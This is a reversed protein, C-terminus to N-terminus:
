RSRGTRSEDFARTAAMDLDIGERRVRADLYHVTSVAAVLATVVISAIIDAVGAVAWLPLQLLELGIVSPATEIALRMVLAGLGACVFVIAGHFWTGSMLNFSRRIARIPGVKEAGMIPATLTVFVALVIGGLGLTFLAGILELVHVLIWGLALLPSRKVSVVLVDTLTAPQGAYWIAAVHAFISAVSFLAISELILTAFPAFDTGFSSANGVVVDMLEDPRADRLQSGPMAASIVRLPLLVILTAGFLLGPDVRLFTIAEDIIALAPRPILPPLEDHSPVRAPRRQTEHATSGSVPGM